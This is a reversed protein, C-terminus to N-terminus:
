DVRRISMIVWGKPIKEFDEHRLIYTIVAKVYDNQNEGYRLSYRNLKLEDGVKFGRDDQRFEWTKLGNKVADYYLENLKLTHKTM